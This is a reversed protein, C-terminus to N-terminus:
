RPRRCEGRWADFCAIHMAFCMPAGYATPVTVEYQVQQQIIPNACCACLRGDGKSAFLQHEGRSPLEGSLMRSRVLAQLAQWNM